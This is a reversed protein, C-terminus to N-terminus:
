ISESKAVRLGQIRNRCSDEIFLKDADQYKKLIDKESNGSDYCDRIELGLDNYKVRKVSFGQQIYHKILACMSHTKGTGPAGFILMGKGEPLNLMIHMLEPKLDNLHAKHYHEPIIRGIHRQIRAQFFTKDYHSIKM